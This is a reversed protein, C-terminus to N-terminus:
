VKEFRRVVWDHKYHEYPSSCHPCRRIRSADFSAGCSRCSVAHITFGYDIEASTSKCLLLNFKEKKRFIRSGKCHIDDMHVVVDLYVLGNEVYYKKVDFLSGYRLDIIDDFTNKMPEGDYVSLEDYNDSYVMMSTLYLIKGLLHDISFNPEFSRMFGPLHKRVRRYRLILPLSILSKLLVYGVTAVALLIYGGALGVAAAVALYFICQIIGLVDATQFAQAFLDMNTLYTISPGLIGGLIVYPLVHRAYSFTGVTYYNTIKPYLDNLLFRTGCFECGEALKRVVTPAGCHPCVYNADADIESNKQGKLWLAFAYINEKEHIEKKLKGHVSYGVRADVNHFPIRTVYRTDVDMKWAIGKFMKDLNHTYDLSISAGKKNLRERQLSRTYKLDASADDPDAKGSQSDLQTIFRDLMIKAQEDYNYNINNSNSNMTM